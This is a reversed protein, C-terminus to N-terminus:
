YNVSAILIDPHQKLPEIKKIVITKHQRKMNTQWQQLVSPNNIYVIAHWHSQKIGIKKIHANQPLTQTISQLIRQIKKIPQFKPTLAAATTANNSNNYHELQQSLEQEHRLNRHNILSAVVIFGILLAFSVVIKQWIQRQSQWHKPYLNIM